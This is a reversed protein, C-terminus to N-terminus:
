APKMMENISPTRALVMPLTEILHYVETSQILNKHSKREFSKSM